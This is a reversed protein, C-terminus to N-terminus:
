IEITLPLGSETPIRDRRWHCGRRITVEFQVRRKLYAGWPMSEEGKFFLPTKM